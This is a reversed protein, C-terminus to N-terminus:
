WMKCIVVTTFLALLSFKFKGELCMRFHDPAFLLRVQSTEHYNYKMSTFIWELIISPVVIIGPLRKVCLLNAMLQQKPKILDPKSRACHHFYFPVTPSIIHFHFSWLEVFTLRFTHTSVEISPCIVIKIKASISLRMCVLSREPFAPPLM